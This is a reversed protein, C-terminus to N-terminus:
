LLDVALEDVARERTESLLARKRIPRCVVLDDLAHRPDHADGAGLFAARKPCSEGDAVGEAPDRGRERDRGREKTARATMASYSDIQRHELNRNRGHAPNDRIVEGGPELRRTQAILVEGSGGRAGELRGVSRQIDRRVLLALELGETRDDLPLFQEGVRAEGIGARSLLM